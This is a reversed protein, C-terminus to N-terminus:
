AVIARALHLHEAAHYGDLLSRGDPGRFYRAEVATPDLNELLRLGLGGLSAALTQPDFGAKMPEGLQAAMQQMLQVRKGAKGPVFADADFYDFVIQSGRAAISAISRLTDFVVAHTLYYSVGLWSFFSAQRPDYSSRELANLLSEKTFDVPIFHLNAPHSWGATTVRERKLAQTIPHDLEFIQLRGALDPRRYAFTDFGAGLIVYQGVGGQMAEELRDESFRSRSLTLPGSNLKIVWDLATAPDPNTAALDPDTYQLLGPLALEMQAHEKPTFLATALYDDFIKPSAHAAHHARAYAMVKASQGAQNETM